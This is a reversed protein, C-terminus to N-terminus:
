GLRVLSQYEVGHAAVRRQEGAVVLDLGRPRDAVRDQLGPPPHVPLQRLVRGSATARVLGVREELVLVVPAGDSIASTQLSCLVLGSLISAARRWRRSSWYLCSAAYAGARTRLRITM